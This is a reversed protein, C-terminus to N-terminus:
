NDPLFNTEWELRPRIVGPLVGTYDGREGEGQPAEMVHFAVVDREDVHVQMPQFTSIAARM